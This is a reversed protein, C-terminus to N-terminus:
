YALDSNLPISCVAKYPGIGVDARGFISANKPNGTPFYRYNGLPLTIKRHLIVPADLAGGGVTM